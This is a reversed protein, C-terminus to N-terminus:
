AAASTWRPSSSSRCTRPPSTARDDSAQRRRLCPVGIRPIGAVFRGSSDTVTVTVQVCRRRGQRRLRLSKTRLTRVIRGGSVLNVVLRVQHEIVDAGADWECEFPPAAVECVQQGDVFFVVGSAAAAPDVGATLTTQGSVLGGAEPQSNGRASRAGAGAWWGHARPGRAVFADPPAHCGSDTFSPPVLKTRYSRVTLLRRLRWTTRSSSGAPGDARLAGAAWWDNYDAPTVEEIFDLVAASLVHRELAAPLGM